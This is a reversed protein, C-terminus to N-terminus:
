RRLIVLIIKICCSSGMVVNKRTERVESRELIETNKYIGVKDMGLRLLVDWDPAWNRLWSVAVFTFRLLLLSKFGELMYGATEFDNVAAM